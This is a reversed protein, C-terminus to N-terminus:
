LIKNLLGILIAKRYGFQKATKIRHCKVCRVECKEIEELITSWSYGYGISSGITLKKTGRVHDFELVIPNDEGCDVCPHSKLYAIINTILEEARMKRQQKVHAAHNAKHREYWDHQIQKICQRCHVQLRDPMPEQRLRIQKEDTPLYSVMEDDSGKNLFLAQLLDKPM